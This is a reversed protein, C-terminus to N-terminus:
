FANRKPPDEVSSGMALDHWSGHRLFNHSTRRPTTDQEAFYCCIPLSHHWHWNNWPRIRIYILESWFLLYLCTGELGLLIAQPTHHSDTFHVLSQPAEKFHLVLVRVGERFHPHIDTWLHCPSSIELRNSSFLWLQHHRSSLMMLFSMQVAYLNIKVTKVQLVHIWICSSHTMCVKELLDLEQLDAIFIKAARM